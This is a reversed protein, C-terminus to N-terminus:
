MSGRMGHQRCRVAQAARRLEPGHETTASRPAAPTVQQHDVCCVDGAGRVARDDRPHTEDNGLGDAISHDAGAGLPDQPVDDRRLEAGDGSVHIEDYAGVRRESTRGGRTHALIQPALQM